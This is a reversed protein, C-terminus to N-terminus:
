PMVATIAKFSINSTTKRANRVLFLILMQRWIDSVSKINGFKTRLQANTIKEDKVQNMIVNLIRRLTRHHFVDLLQLDSRNGSWLECNWLALNVPM